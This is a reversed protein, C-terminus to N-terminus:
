QKLQDIRVIRLPEALHLVAIDLAAHPLDLEELTAQGAFIGSGVREIRVEVVRGVAEVTLLPVFRAVPYTSARAWYNICEDSFTKLLELEREASARFRSRVLVGPVEYELVVQAVRGNISVVDWVEPAPVETRHGM